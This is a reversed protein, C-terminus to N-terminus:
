KELEAIYKDSWEKISAAGGEVPYYRVGNVELSVSEGDIIMKYKKESDYELCEKIITPNCLEKISQPIEEENTPDFEAKGANGKLEAEINGSYVFLDVSEDLLARVEWTKEAEAMLKEVPHMGSTNVKNEKKNEAVATPTAEANKVGSDKNKCGGLSGILATVLVVAIVRKM